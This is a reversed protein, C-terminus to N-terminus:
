LAGTGLLYEALKHYLSIGVIVNFPFTVGLSAALSLTPNAEPVLIRMAAPVAIYSASAAMTAMMMVGGVSLGMWLGIWAGILSSLMPMTIGFVIIAAGYRQLSTVQSAAILGMELLFLALVGKFLDFFFPTIPAIASPGAIWGIALGGGLLVISKGLFVEHCLTGWPTKRSIGKALMVGVVIAPMELVVMFVAMYEEFWIDHSFLYAVAVAYTAVSVSGYHAAISAADARGFKGIMRLVPYAICPLGVGMAIVILLQPALALIEQKALEVGGKLGITLLLITSLFEYIANPLRIDAKTMGAILGLLFFLVVPDM